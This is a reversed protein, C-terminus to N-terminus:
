KCRVSEIWAALHWPNFLTRWFTTHTKFCPSWPWSRSRLYSSSFWAFPGVCKNVSPHQTSHRKRGHLESSSSQCLDQASRDHLVGHQAVSHLWAVCKGDSSGEFTWNHTRRRLAATNFFTKRVDHGLREHVWPM